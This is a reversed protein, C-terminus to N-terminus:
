EPVSYNKSLVLQIRGYRRHLPTEALLKGAKLGYGISKAYEGDYYAGEAVLLGFLGAEGPSSVFEKEDLVALERMALSFKRQRLQEEIALLRDDLAIKPSSLRM